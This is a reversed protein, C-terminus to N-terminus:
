YLAFLQSNSPIYYPLAYPYCALCRSFADLNLDDRAELSEENRDIGSYLDRGNRLSKGHHTKVVSLNGKDAYPHLINHQVDDYPDQEYDVFVVM